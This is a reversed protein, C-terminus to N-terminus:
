EGKEICFVAYLPVSKIKKNSDFGFNRSSIRIAYSPNFLDMYSNLSKSQKNSAAKVEIPIIGSENYLLFDIEAKGKSLWYYLSHNNCILQTAVYNEAISGKYLSLNDTIIDSYRIELLHNLLGVDSLFLKFFDEEKYGALPIQPTSVRYSTLVLNSASLWDLPLEYERTRSNRDIKSFQFKKSENALQSPISKYTKKIKLTESENIVYKSMDNFYAEIIDNKISSDYKMIDCNVSTFNKVSEPMGGCILYYRYYELALSHLQALMPTNTKYCKKIEDILMERNNALLFEEFDMPYLTIMKVKGVPFSYKTRKLKVGLLSGACIIRVNNHKECFYKLEFILAESEQIEDIFLITNKEELNHNLLTQLYNFKQDSDIDKRDYLEVINNSSFLNVYIYNEYENKCFDDIIYTKGVQRAGLVILPKINEKENKWKLLENYIKRKMKKVM